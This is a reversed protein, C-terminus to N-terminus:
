EDILRTVWTHPDSEKWTDLTARVQDLKKVIDDPKGDIKPICFITPIDVVEDVTKLEEYMVNLLSDYNARAAKNLELNDYLAKAIDLMVILYNAEHLTQKIEAIEKLDSETPNVKTLLQIRTGADDIFNVKTNLAMLGTKPDSREIRCSVTDKSLTSMPRLLDDSLEHGDKDTVFIRLTDGKAGGFSKVSRMFSTKGAGKVGMLVINPRDPGQRNSKVLQTKRGTM